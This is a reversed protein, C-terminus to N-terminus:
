VNLSLYEVINDYEIRMSEKTVNDKITVYNGKLEDEGIIIVHKPNLDEVIKFQSKLSKDM